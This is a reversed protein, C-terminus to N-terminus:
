LRAMVFDGEEERLAFNVGCMRCRSESGAEPSAGFSVGWGCVPCFFVVDHSGDLFEKMLFHLGNVHGHEARAFELFLKKIEEDDTQGAFEKYIRTAEAEFAHDARMMAMNTKQGAVQEGEYIMGPLAPGPLKDAEAPDGGLRTIQEALHEEHGVENRMLGQLLSYVKPDDTRSQHDEYRTVADIELRLATYLNQLDTSKSM